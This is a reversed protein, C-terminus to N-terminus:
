NNLDNLFDEFTKEEKAECKKPMYVNMKDLCNHLNGRHEAKPPAVYVDIFKCYFVKHNKGINIGGINIGDTEIKLNSVLGKCTFCDRHNEPNRYCRLEHIKCHGKTLYMKNCHDCYYTERTLTRM